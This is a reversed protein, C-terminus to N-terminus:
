SRVFAEEFSDVLASCRDMSSKEGGFIIREAERSIQTFTDLLKGHGALFIILENNTYTFRERKIKHIHIYAVTAKHLNIVTESAKGNKYSAQALSLFHDFKSGQSEKKGISKVIMEAESPEKYNKLLPSSLIFYLVLIIGILFLGLFFYKADFPLRFMFLNRNKTDTEKTLGAHKTSSSQPSEEWGSREKLLQDLRSVVQEPTPPANEPAYSVAPLLLCAITIIIFKM